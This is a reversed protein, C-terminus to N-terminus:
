KRPKGDGAAIRILKLLDASAEPSSRWAQMLAPNLELIQVAGEDLSPLGGRTSSPNALADALKDLIERLQDPAVAAVEALVPNERLWAQEAESLVVMDAVSSEASVAAPAATVASGGALMLVLAWVVRNHAWFRVGRRGSWAAM